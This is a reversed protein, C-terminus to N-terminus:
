CVATGILEWVVTDCHEEASTDFHELVAINWREEAVIDFRGGGAIYWHELASTHLATDGLKRTCLRHIFFWKLHECDKLM